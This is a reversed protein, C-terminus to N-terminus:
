FLLTPIGSDAMLSFGVELARDYPLPISAWHEKTRPHVGLVRYQRARLSSFQCWPGEEVPPLESPSTFEESEVLRNM